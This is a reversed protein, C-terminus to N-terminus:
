IINLRKSLLFLLAVLKSNVKKRIESMAKGMQNEVTKISIGLEQAIDKYRMGHKKCLIFIEKRRPPLEEIAKHVKQLRLQFDTENERSLLESLVSYRLKELENAHKKKKKNLDYFEHYALKYLYANISKKLHLSKRKKWLKLLVEQAIDEAIYSDQTFNLIYVRLKPYYHLYVIKYAGRDGSRVRSILDEQNELHRGM